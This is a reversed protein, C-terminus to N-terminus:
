EIDPFGVTSPASWIKVSVSRTALVRAWPPPTLCYSLAERETPNLFGVQEARGCPRGKGMVVSHSSHPVRDIVSHIRM